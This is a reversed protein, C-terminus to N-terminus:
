LIDYSTEIKGYDNTEKTVQLKGLTKPLNSKVWAILPKRLVTTERPQLDEPEKDLAKALHKAMLEFKSSLANLWRDNSLQDEIEYESDAMVNSGGTLVDAVNDIEDGKFGCHRLVSGVACVGCPKDDRKANRKTRVFANAILPERSLAEIVIKRSVNINKVSKM